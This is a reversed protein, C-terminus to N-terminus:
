VIRLTPRKGAMPEVAGIHLAMEGADTLMGLADSLRHGPVALLLGGSTQADFLLDMALPDLSPGAAVDAGFHKRNAHSGAPLLGIAALELARDMFRVASLEVVADVHSARLVELLHGCLGFGTVDTAARLGLARIVAGGAANLRGCWRSLTREMEAQGEWHAKIATALVGTGLPKTLVLADGPRAGTNAAIHAPDVAGSVALGYKLEQDRVSHGGAPVAGAASVADRGGELIARLVALDLCDVPFCALNMAAWPEGGMAYVDSLANAAAIRGFWYPDNVIPTLFDVTQVLARGPPFTLVAADEAGGSETLLRADDM